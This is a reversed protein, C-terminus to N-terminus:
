RLGGDKWGWTGRGGGRRWREHDAKADEAERVQKRRREMEERQQKQMISKKRTM